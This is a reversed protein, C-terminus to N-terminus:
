PNETVREVERGSAQWDLMSGLYNRAKVGQDQLIWFAVSSRTGSRCYVGVEDGPRLALRDLVGPAFFQDLPLLRAGPIHGAAFEDPRRVDVLNPYRAAEEQTLLIERNLKAWPRGPTPRVPETSTAQAEWGGPWLHVELGSLALLYATRAAAGTLGRDYVVVPQDPIAGIEGNLNALYAELSALDADLKAPASSLDLNLAGSLHGAAYLQPPRADILLAKEPPRQVIM